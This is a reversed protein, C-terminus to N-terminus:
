APLEGAKFCCSRILPKQIVSVLISKYKRIRLVVAVVNEFGPVPSIDANFKRRIEFVLVLVKVVEVLAVNVRIEHFDEILFV